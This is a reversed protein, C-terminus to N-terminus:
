QNRELLRYGVPAVGDPSVPHYEAAFFSELRPFRMRSRDTSPWNRLIFDETFDHWVIWRPPDDRLSKLALEEDRPGMMGPQLWSYPAPNRAGLVFYLAPLYPYVFLKDGPHVAALLDNLQVFHLRSVELRGAPTDIPRLENQPRGAVWALVTALLLGAAITRQRRPSALCGPASCCVTWFFASGFLLQAAGFRPWCAALAAAAALGFPWALRNGSRALPIWAIAALPPLIVPLKSIVLSFAGRDSGSLAGFALRNAAAYNSADWFLSRAMPGLAGQLLLVASAALSVLGFGAAYSWFGRSAGAEAAIWAALALAALLLPPTMWVAIASLAGAAAFWRRMASPTSVPSVVCVLAFLAAANSDWRHTVYLPYLTTLLMALFLLASAAALLAGTFQAALRCIAACIGALECCLVFRAHALSVGTLRFVAGYLWFSGPGAVAFFDRYPVEGRAVRRAGELLIGEDISLYFWHGLRVWLLPLAIAFVIVAPYRRSADRASPAFRTGVKAPAM